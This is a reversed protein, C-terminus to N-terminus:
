EKCCGAGIGSRFLESKLLFSGTTVVKQGPKLGWAVEVADGGESARAVVRQPRYGRKEDALFVLDAQGDNQLASRPVVVADHEDGVHVEARGFQHARLRGDINQLEARVRVTRTTPNVATDIWDVRGSFVPAETGSITIRV